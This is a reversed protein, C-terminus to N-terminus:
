RWRQKYNESLLCARSVESAITDLMAVRVDASIDEMTTSADDATEARTPPVNM